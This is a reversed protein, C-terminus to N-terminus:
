SWIRSGRTFYYNALTLISLCQGTVVDKSISISFGAPFLGLQASMFMECGAMRPWSCGNKSSLLSAGTFIRLPGCSM